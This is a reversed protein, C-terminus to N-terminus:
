SRHALAVRSSNRGKGLPVRRGWGLMRLCAFWMVACGIAVGASQEWGFAYDRAGLGLADAFVALMVLTGGAVVLMSGLGKGV